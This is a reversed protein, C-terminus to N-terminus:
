RLERPEEAGGEEVEGRPRGQPEDPDALVLGAVVRDALRQALDPSLGAEAAGDLVMTHVLRQQDRTLPPIVEPVPPRRRMWRWLTSSGRSAGDVLNQAIRERARELTLWLLPAVLPVIEALGFGLPDREGRRRRLRALVEADSQRLLGEVIVVEEPACAAVVDRVLDRVRVGAMQESM